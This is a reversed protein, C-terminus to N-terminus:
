ETKSIKPKISLFYAIQKEFNYCTEYEIKVKTSNLYNFKLLFIPLGLM